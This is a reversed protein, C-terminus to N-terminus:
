LLQSGAYRRNMDALRVVLTRILQLAMEPCEKVIVDLKSAGFVEVVSDGVSTVTAQRPMNLLSAMEGFFEGPKVIRNIERGGITVRLGGQTSVLRYFEKGRSGEEIIADGDNFFRVEMEDLDLDIMDSQQVLLKSTQLLQRLISSVINQTMRPNYRLFYDFAEAGYAAIRSRSFSKVTYDWPKKFVVSELGFIDHEELLRIKKEKQTVLVQGSLVVFLCSLDSGETVIVEGERYVKIHLARAPPIHRSRDTNLPADRMAKFEQYLYAEPQLAVVKKLM